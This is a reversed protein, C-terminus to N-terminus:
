HQEFISLEARNDLQYGDDLANFSSAIDAVETAQWLGTQLAQVIVARINLFLKYM